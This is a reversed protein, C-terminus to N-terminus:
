DKRKDNEYRNNIREIWQEDTEDYPLEILTINNLECWEKKRNDNSKRKNFEKKSKCFFPIHTYHQEGNTEIIINQRPLFFDAFLNATKQGQKSGPLVCEEFVLELPFLKEIIKRARNHLESVKNRKKNIFSIPYEKGDFGRFKMNLDRLFNKMELLNSIDSLNCNSKYLLQPNIDLKEALQMITFKENNYEIYRNTRKNNSNEKPSICNCNNSQYDGDNDIRNIHLGEKWGNDMAWDYFKKFDNKWEDCVKIGRGGYNLYSKNNKNYCRQKMGTWIKYLKHKKLGHTPHGLKCSCAKQKGSKVSSLIKEEKEGCIDCEFLWVQQGVGKGKGNRRVFRIATLHNFKTGSIDEIVREHYGAKRRFINNRKLLTYITSSNTNFEKALTPAGIGSQYKEIILKDNLEIKKM